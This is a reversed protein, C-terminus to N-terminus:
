ILTKSVLTTDMQSLFRRNKAMMDPSGECKETVVPSPSFQFRPQPQPQVGAELDDEKALHLSEQSDIAEGEKLESSELILASDLEQTIQEFETIVTDLFMSEPRRVDSLSEARTREVIAGGSGASGFSSDSHATDSTTSPKQADTIPDPAVPLRSSSGSGGNPKILRASITPNTEVYDYGPSRRSHSGQESSTVGASAKSLTFKPFSRLTDEGDSPHCVIKTSQPDSDGVSRPSQYHSPVQFTQPKAVEIGRYRDEQNMRVNMYLESQVEHVGRSTPNSVYPCLRAPNFNDLLYSTDKRLRWAEMEDTGVVRVQIDLDIPIDLLRANELDRELVSTAVLSTNISSHLLTVVSLSLKSPVASASEATNFLVAKCPFADPLHKVIEPLYMSVDRPKTSFHGICNENLTKERGTTVSYVKLVKKGFLKTCVKKLVLLENAAISSGPSSDQHGKRARFVLPLTGRQLMDSVKDFKYGKLAESHNNNPNYLLGFLVASNLPVNFRNKNQSELVVVTTHKVFHISFHDGESISMEESPGCFGRCVRVCLPLCDHFRAVFLPLSLKEPPPPPSFNPQSNHYDGMSNSRQTRSQPKVIAPTSRVQPTPQSSSRRPYSPNDMASM